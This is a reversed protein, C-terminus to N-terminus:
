RGTFNEYHCHDVCFKQESIFEDRMREIVIRDSIDIALAFVGQVVKQENGHLTYIM